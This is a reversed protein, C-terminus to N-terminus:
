FEQSILKFGHITQNIKVKLKEYREVVALFLTKQEKGYMDRSFNNCM